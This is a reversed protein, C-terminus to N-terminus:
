EQCRFRKRMRRITEAGYSVSLIQPFHVGISFGMVPFSKLSDGFKFRPDFFSSYMYVFGSFKMCIACPIRGRQANINWFKTFNVTKKPPPAIGYGQVLSLPIQTL